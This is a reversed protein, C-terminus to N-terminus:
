LDGKYTIEIWHKCYATETADDLYEQLFKFPFPYTMLENWRGFGFKLMECINMIHSEVLEPHESHLVFIRRARPMKDMKTDKKLQINDNNIGAIYSYSSNPEGDIGDTKWLHFGVYGRLYKHAESKRKFFALPKDGNVIESYGDDILSVDLIPIEDTDIILYVNGDKKIAMYDRAGQIKEPQNFLLEQRAFSDFDCPLESTSFGYDKIAIMNDKYISLSAGIVNGQNIKYRVFEWEYVMNGLEHPIQRNILCDKVLLEVLIRRAEAKEFKDEKENNHFIKHQLATANHAMRYLSQTYHTASSEDNIPEVLKILMDNVVRKKPFQLGDGVVNQFEEKMKSILAKSETTGFPDEFSINRNTFYTKISALIDKEPRYQDFHFLESDVFDIKIVEKYKNNVSEVVQSIAFLKGHTYNEPNYPWYPVINHKDGFKKKKIYLEEVKLDKDKLNRIVIPKVSLGTWWQGYVDKSVQFVCNGRKRLQEINRPNSFSTTKATLNLYENIEIQLCVLEKRSKPVLFNKDDCLLLKGDNYMMKGNKIKGLSNIALSGVIRKRLRIAYDSLDDEQFRIKNYSRLSNLVDNVKSNEVLIFFKVSPYLLESWRSRIGTVSLCPVDALQEYALNKYEKDLSYYSVISYMSFFKEMDIDVDISNTTLPYNGIETIDIM